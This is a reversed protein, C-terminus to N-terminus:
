INGSLRKFKNKDKNVINNVSGVGDRNPSNHPSSCNTENHYIKIVGNINGMVFIMNIIKDSMVKFYRRMQALIVQQPAFVASTVSQNRGYPTFYECSNSKDSLLLNSILSKKSM